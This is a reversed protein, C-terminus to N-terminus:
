QRDIHLVTQNYRAAYSEAMDREERCQVGETDSTGPIELAPHGRPNSVGPTSGAFGGMTLLHRDGKSMAVQADAIPNGGVFQRLGQCIDKPQSACGAIALMAFVM